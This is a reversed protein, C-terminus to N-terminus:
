RNQRTFIKKVGTILIAFVMFMGIYGFAPYIFAILKSFGLSSLPIVIACLIIAALRRSIRIRGCVRSLFGYGNASASLLMALWLIFSYFYSIYVNSKKIADIVPIEHTLSDPHNMSIVVNIVFAVACLSLGGLVGAFTGTKRTKLYPLLSCMVVVSSISNYSVYLLASFFWNHTIPTIYVAANFVAIGKFAIIYLGTCIMGTILIPSVVTSLAMVGRIGFVLVLMCILSMILIGCKFPVSLMDELVKGAGAIMISFVSLMFVSVAIEMFWGIGWGVMPFLLEEYSQIRECFVKDLVICGIASFLLGALILGYLGGNYYRSFFQVIERGSAFGAGIITAMYISAVKIINSIEKRL